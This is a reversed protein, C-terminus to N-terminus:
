AGYCQREKWLVSKGDQLLESARTMTPLGRKVCVVHGTSLSNECLPCLDEM